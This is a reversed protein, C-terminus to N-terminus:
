KDVGISEPKQANHDHESGSYIKLRNMRQLSLKNKPIMGKVAAEIVSEPDNELKYALNVNKIGSPYGSYRYYQKDSKKKGTVVVDKANIVVVYDGSDINPTYAPQYKGILRKAIFTAVRGLPASSADVVVWKRTIESPKLNTTKLNPNIKM